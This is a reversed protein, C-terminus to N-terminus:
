FLWGLSGLLSRLAKFDDPNALSYTLKRLLRARKKASLYVEQSVTDCMIGLIEQTQSPPDIKEPSVPINLDALVRLTVDLYKQCESKTRGCLMFDDLFVEVEKPPIGAAILAKRVEATVVGAFAPALKLGFTNANVLKM